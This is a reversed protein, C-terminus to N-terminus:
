LMWQVILMQLDIKECGTIQVKLSCGACPFKASADWCFSFEGSIELGGGEGKGKPLFYSLHM